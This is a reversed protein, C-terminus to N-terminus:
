QPSRMEGPFPIAPVDNVLLGAGRQPSRQAEHNLCVALPVLLVHRRHGAELHPTAHTRREATCLRPRAADKFEDAVRLLWFLALAVVFATGVTGPSLGTGRLAAAFSVAALSFVAM